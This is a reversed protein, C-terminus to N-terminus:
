FIAAYDLGVIVDAANTFDVGPNAAKHIQVTFAQSLDIGSLANLPSAPSTSLADTIPPANSYVAGNVLTVNISKAPSTTKVVANVPAGDPAGALVVFINTLKRTKELRPLELKSLDFVFDAGNKKQLDSLASPQLRSASLMLTKEAATLPSGTAQQYLAASFRATLSFILQVDAIGNVGTPNAAPPLEMSWVSDFGGGEFQMLTAGPLGFLNMDLTSIDFESIPLADAPRLSPALAGDPGSIQSVGSNALVGRIPAGAAMRVVRPTVARIRFGYMGPYAAQLVLDSTKFQCAGTQKLAALAVPFDRALSFTLKLPVMEQLGALHQAELSALDLHLEDAGGAGQYQAPYYDFGIINLTAGQEYALAREALWGARAGFDLYRRMARKFLAAMYSWFEINLYREDAYALLSQALSADAQAIQQQIGAITVQQNAIDLQADAAVLNQNKLTQLQQQRQNAADAMSSLTIYSVTFAAGYVGLVSLGGAVAPSMDVSVSDLGLAGSLNLSSSASSASSGLDAADKGGKALDGIGKVFDGVQGFFSDHDDIDKQAKKIQDNVQAILVNAQKVQDNAMALQASAIQSQLQARKLMAANKMADITAQEIQAMANLFDTEASKADAAFANAGAILTAYRQSPVIDDAYGFFNLGAAIQAFGLAARGLQSAKAPNVYVPLPNLLHLKGWTPSIPPTDGHLFTVGKYLERARSVDSPDNARYLSDAWALMAAGMQLRYYAREVPHLGSPVLAYLTPNPDYGNFYPSDDDGFNPYYDLPSSEVTYPLDGAAYLLYRPNFSSVGKWGSDPPAGAGVLRWAARGLYRVAHAHQGLALMTQAVLTPLAFYYLYVLACSLKLTYFGFFNPIDNNNPNGDYVLNGVQWSTLIGSEGGYLDDMSAIAKGRRANFAAVVANQDLLKNFLLSGVAPWLANLADLAARFESQEILSLAHAYRDHLTLADFFFQAQTQFAGPSGALGTLLKRGEDDFTMDFVNQIQVYNEYPVPQQQLVWEDYELFFPAKGALVDPIIPQGLVDPATHAPDPVSQFSDRFFGQLTRINEWVASSTAPGDPREFDTRYRLSLEGASVGTLGILTDLYARATATGRAPIKAATLGFGFTSGPAATLIETLIPILLENPPAQSIDTTTFDQHFRNRLQQEAQVETLMHPQVYVVATITNTWQSRLYDRYGIDNNRWFIPARWPDGAHAIIGSAPDQRFRSPNIQWDVASLAPFAALKRSVDDLAAKAAATRGPRGLEQRYADLGGPAALERWAPLPKIKRLAQEPDLFAAELEALANQREEVPWDKFVSSSGASGSLERVLANMQTLGASKAREGIQGWKAASLLKEPIPVLVELATQNAAPGEFAREALLRKRQTDTVALAWRAEAFNTLLCLREAVARGPLWAMKFAGGHDSTASGLLMRSAEGAPRSPQDLYYLKICLGALPDGSRANLLTGSLGLESPPSTEGSSPGAVAKKM